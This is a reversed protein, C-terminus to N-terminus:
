KMAKPIALPNTPEIVIPGKALQDFAIKRMDELHYKVADLQGASGAGQTPRFGCDWLSDMLEQAQEARMAATPESQGDPIPIYEIPKAILRQKLAGTYDLVPKFLRVQICDWAFDYYAHATTNDRIIRM